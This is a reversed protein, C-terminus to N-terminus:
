IYSLQKSHCHRETELSWCLLGIIHVFGSRPHRKGMGGRQGRSSVAPHWRLAGTNDVDPEVPGEGTLWAQM